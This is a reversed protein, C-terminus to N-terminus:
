HSPLVDTGTSTPAKVGAPVDDPCTRIEVNEYVTIHEPANSNRAGSKSITELNSHRSEFRSVSAV